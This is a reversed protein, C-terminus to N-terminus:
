LHWLWDAAELEDWRQVYMTHLLSHYTVMKDMDGGLAELKNSVADIWEQETM